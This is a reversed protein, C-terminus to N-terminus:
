KQDEEDILLFIICMSSYVTIGVGLEIVSIGFHQGKIDNDFLVSYELFNGFKLLAFFGVIFYIFVGLAASILLNKLSFVKPLKEKGFLLIYGMISSGFIAGAQFGGGPGNEGNLQIYLSYLIIYPIIFSIIYRIIIFNQLM